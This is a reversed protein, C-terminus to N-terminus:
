AKALPGYKGAIWASLYAVIAFVILASITMGDMMAGQVLGM